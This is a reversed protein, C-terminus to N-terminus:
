EGMEKEMEAFLEDIEEVGVNSFDWDKEEATLPPDMCMGKWSTQSPSPNAEASTYVNMHGDIGMGMDMNADVGLHLDRNMDVDMAMDLYTDESLLAGDGPLQNGLGAESVSLMLDGRYPSTLDATFDPTSSMIDSTTPSYMPISQPTADANADADVVENGALLNELGFAPVAEFEPMWPMLDLDGLNPSAPAVNIDPIMEMMDPTADVESDGLGPDLEQAPEPETESVWPMLDLDGFHPSAPASNIDSISNMDSSHMSSSQPTTNADVDIDEDSNADIDVDEYVDENVAVDEAEDGYEDVDKDVDEDVDVDVDEDFDEDFDEDVDVDGAEDDDEDIDQDIDDEADSDSDSDPYSDRVENADFDSDFEDDSDTLEDADFDDDDSDSDSIEIVVRKATVPASIGASKKATATKPGRKGNVGLNRTLNGKPTPKINKPSPKAQRNGRVSNTQLGQKLVPTPNTTSEADKKSKTTKSRKKRRPNQHWIVVPKPYTPKLTPEPTEPSPQTTRRAPISVTQTKLTPALTPIPSAVSNTASKADKKLSTTKSRRKKHPNIHWIVVPKPYIPKPTPKPTKMGANPKAKEGVTASVTKTKLTPTPNPIAASEADKKVSTTTSSRKRHPRHHWIIKQKPYVPKPTPTSEADNRSDPVGSSTSANTKANSNLDSETNDLSAKPRPNRGVPTAMMKSKQETKLKQKQKQQVSQASKLAAKTKPM